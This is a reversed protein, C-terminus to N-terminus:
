KTSGFVDDCSELPAPTDIEREYLEWSCVAMKKSEKAKETAENAKQESSFVGLVMVGDPACAQLAVFVKMTEAEEKISTSLYGLFARIAEVDEPSIDAKLALRRRAIWTLDETTVMERDRHIADIREAYDKM